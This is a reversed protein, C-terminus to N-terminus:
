QGLSEEIQKVAASTMLLCDCDLLGHTSINQPNLIHLSKINRGSLRLKDDPGGPVLTIRGNLKLNKLVQIIKKTKIEEVALEDLIVIEQDALKASLATCMALRRMKKPLEWTYDRPKPGFTVGGKRWLPSRNSGARARGTGKQRWPKAGGGSVEARTKTCASGRRQSAQYSQVAEWLLHRNIKRGFVKESLSIEGAPQNEYNVMQVVPM